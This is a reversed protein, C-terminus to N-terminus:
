ARRPGVSSTVCATDVNHSLIPAQICMNIQPFMAQGGVMQYVCVYHAYSTIPLAVSVDEVHSRLNAAEVLSWVNGHGCLSELKVGAHNM